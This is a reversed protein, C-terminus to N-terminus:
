QAVLEMKPQNATAAEAQQREIEKVAKEQEAKQQQQARFQHEAIADRMTEQRVQFAAQLMQLLSGHMPLPLKAIRDEMYRYESNLNTRATTVPVNTIASVQDGLTKDNQM